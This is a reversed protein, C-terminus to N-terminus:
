CQPLSLKLFLLSYSHFPYEKKILENLIQKLNRFTACLLHLNRVTGPWHHYDKLFLQLLM